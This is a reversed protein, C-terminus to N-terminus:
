RTAFERLCTKKHHPEDSFWKQFIIETWQNSHILCFNRKRSQDARGYNIALIHLAQLHRHFIKASSILWRFPKVTKLNSSLFRLHNSSDICTCTSRVFLLEWITQNSILCTKICPLLNKRCPLKAHHLNQKKFFYFERLGQLTETFSLLLERYIIDNNCKSHYSFLFLIIPISRDVKREFCFQWPQKTGLLDGMQSLPWDWPFLWNKCSPPLTTNFTRSNLLAGDRSFRDEPNQGAVFALWLRSFKSIALISIISDLCHVVFASILSRPHAPQDARQQDCIAFVPKRM